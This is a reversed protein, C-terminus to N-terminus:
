HWQFKEKSQQFEYVTVGIERPDIFRALSFATLIKRPASEILEPLQDSQEKCRTDILLSLIM